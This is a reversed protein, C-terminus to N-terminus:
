SGTRAILTRLNPLKIASLPGRPRGQAASSFRLRAMHTGSTSEPLEGHVLFSSLLRNRRSFRAPNWTIAGKRTRGSLVGVGRPM